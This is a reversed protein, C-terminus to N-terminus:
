AEDPIHKFYGKDGSESEWKRNKNIEFKANIAAFLSFGMKHALHFLLLACDAAEERISEDSASQNDLVSFVLEKSEEEFHSAVSKADSRPFTKDGWEGLETQFPDFFQRYVEPSIKTTPMRSEKRACRM